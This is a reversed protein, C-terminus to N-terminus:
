LALGFVTNIGTASVIATAEGKKVISGSFISDEKNKYILASEGTLSSQDVRLYGEVIKADAMVFDGTRLRILDGPVIFNALIVRWEQDRKVRVTIQLQQKLMSLASNAKREQFYGVFANFILLALIIIAEIQKGILWELIITLEL